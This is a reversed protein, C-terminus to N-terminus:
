EARENFVLSGRESGLQLCAEGESSRHVWEHSAKQTALVSGASCQEEVARVESQKKKEKFATGRM